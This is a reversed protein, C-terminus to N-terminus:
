TKEDLAEPHQALWELPHIAYIQMLPCPPVMAKRALIRAPENLPEGDDDFKPEENPM